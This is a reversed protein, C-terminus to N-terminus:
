VPAATLTRHVPWFEVPPVPGTVGLAELAPAFRERLFAEAEERSEWVELVRWGGEPHPGALHLSGGLPADLELLAVLREYLAESGRPNNMIMAVAM